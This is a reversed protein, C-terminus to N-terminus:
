KREQNEVANIIRMADNMAIDSNEFLLKSFRNQIAMIFRLISHISDIMNTDLRNSLIKWHNLRGFGREIINRIRTVKRSHNSDQKSLQKNGSKLRIPYIVKTDVNQRTFGRDLIRISNETDILDILKRDIDLQKLYNKQKKPNILYCITFIRMM